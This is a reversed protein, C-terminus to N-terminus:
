NFFRSLLRSTIGFLFLVIIFTLALQFILYVLIIVCVGRVIKRAM